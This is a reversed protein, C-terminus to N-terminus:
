TPEKTAVVTRQVHAVFRDKADENFLNFVPIRMIDALVIATATGGTAVTRATETECGDQTWCLVFSVESKLDAGLVQGVNRAHLARSADDLGPWAPHISQAIEFHETTPYFADKHDGNKSPWPLWIEVQGRAAKCGSEFATDAGYAAGSRLVVGRQALRTAARRMYSLIVPPTKRSGVGAYIIGGM